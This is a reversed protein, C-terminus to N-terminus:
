LGNLFGLLEGIDTLGRHAWIVKGTEDVVFDAPSQMEKGENDGHVKGLKKAEGAKRLIEITTGLGMNGVGYDDYVKYGNGVKPVPIVTFGLEKSSCYSRASEQSSQTFFILEAKEKIRDINLCLEDFDLQCVPCGFYRGFLIVLKRGSFSSLSIKDGDISELEFGPAQDGVGLKAM